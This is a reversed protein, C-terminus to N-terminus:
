YPIAGTSFLKSFFLTDSQLEQFAKDSALKILSELWQMESGWLWQTALHRLKSSCPLDNELIAKSDRGSDNWVVLVAHMQSATQLKCTVTSHKLLWDKRSYCTCWNKQSTRWGGPGVQCPKHFFVCVVEERNGNTPQSTPDAHKLFFPVLHVMSGM